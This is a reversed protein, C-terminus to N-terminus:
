RAARQSQKPDIHCEWCSLEVSAAAHCRDCFDAKSTHCGLCTQTLSRAYTKGDLGVVTRQQQRVVEDRWSMLLDMHSARMFEVSGFPDREQAARALEPAARVTGSALNYWFPFTMLGLFLVLGGIIVGRDRM